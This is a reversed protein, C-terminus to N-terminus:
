VARKMATENLLALVRGFYEHSMGEPSFAGAFVIFPNMNSKEMTENQKAESEITM